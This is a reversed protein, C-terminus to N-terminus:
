ASAVQSRMLGFAGAGLFVPVFGPITDFAGGREMLYSRPMPERPADFYEGVQAAFDDVYESDAFLVVSGFLLVLSAFVPGLWTVSHNTAKAHGYAFATAFVIPAVCAVEDTMLVTLSLFLSGLWTAVFTGMPGIIPGYQPDVRVTMSEAFVMGLVFMCCFYFVVLRSLVATSTNLMDQMEFGMYVLLAANMGGFLVGQILASAMEEKEKSNTLNENGARSDALFRETM